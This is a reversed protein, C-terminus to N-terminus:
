CASRRRSALAAGTSRFRISQAGREHVQALSRYLLFGTANGADPASALADEEDDADVPGLNVARVAVASVTGVSWRGSSMGAARAEVTAGTTITSAECAGAALAATVAGAGVSVQM